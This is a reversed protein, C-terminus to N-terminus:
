KFFELFPIVEDQPIYEMLEALKPVINGSQLEGGASTSTDSFVKQSM